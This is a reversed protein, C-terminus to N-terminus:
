NAELKLDSAIEGLRAQQSPTLPLNSLQQYIQRALPLDKLQHAAELTLTAADRTQVKNASQFTALLKLGLESKGSHIMMQAQSLRLLSSGIGHRHAQELAQVAAEPENSWWHWYSVCVQHVLQAQPSATTQPIWQSSKLGDRAVSRMYRLTTFLNANIITSPRLFDCSVAQHDLSSLSSVFELRTAHDWEMDADNVTALHEGQLTLLSEFLQLFLRTQEGAQKGDRHWAEDFMAVLAHYSVDRKQRYTEVVMKRALPADYQVMEQICRDIEELSQVRELGRHFIANGDAQRGSSSLESALMMSALLKSEVPRDLSQEVLRQFRELMKPPLPEFNLSRKVSVQFQLSRRFLLENLALQIAQSDGSDTLRQLVDEYQTALAAEDPSPSGVNASTVAVSRAHWPQLLLICDWLRNPDQSQLASQVFSLLSSTAVRQANQDVSVNSNELDDAKARANQNARGYKALTAIAHADGFTPLYITPSTGQPVAAGRQLAQQQIMVRRTTASLPGTVRILAPNINPENFLEQWADARELWALRGADVVDKLNAANPETPPRSASRSEAAPPELYQAPQEFPVQLGLISEALVLGREGANLRQNAVIGLALLEWNDPMVIQAASVVGAAVAHENRILLSRIYAILTVLQGRDRLMDSWQRKAAAEDGSRFLLEGLLLSGEPSPDRQILQRQCEAAADYKGIAQAIELSSRLLEADDNRGTLARQLASWAANLDGRQQHIKAIWLWADRSRNQQTGFQELRDVLELLREAGSYSKRLLELADRQMPEEQALKLCQWANAESAAYNKLNAQLQSLLLWARADDPKSTTLQEVAEVARLPNGAAHCLVAYYKFHQETAAPESLMQEVTLLADDVRKFQMQIEALRQLHQLRNPRNLRCLVQQAEQERVALGARRYVKAALTWTVLSDPDAQTAEAVAAAAAESNGAALQTLVILRWAHTRSQPQLSLSKLQELRGDLPALKPLVVLLENWVRDQEEATKAQLEAADLRDCAEAFRQAESLLEAARLLSELNPKLQCAREIAQLAEAQYRFQSLVESLRAYSAANEENKPIQQLVEVATERRGLRHLYEGYFERYQQANNSHQWASRFLEEAEETRTIGHLLEAVRVLMAPDHDRKDLLRKWIEAARDRASAPDETPVLLQIRGWAIRSDVDNGDIEVLRQLAQAASPFDQEAQSWEAQALWAEPRSPYQEQVRHLLQWAEPRRGDSRLLEALRLSGRLDDQRTNLRNQYYEILGATGRESEVLQEIEQLLSGYLWSEPEARRLLAEYDAIAEQRAGLRGKINALQKQLDLRENPSKALGILQEIIPKATKPDDCNLYIESLKRLVQVNAPFLSQIQDGIAAISAMVDPSRHQPRARALENLIEAAVTPNPRRSLSRQLSQVVNSFDRNFNHARALYLSTLADASALEDAKSLSQIAALIQGRQLEILGLLQWLRGNNTKAAETRLEDCYSAVSNANGLQEYFKDFATGTQPRSRLIQEYRQRLQTSKDTASKQDSLTADQALLLGDLTLAFGFLIAVLSRLIGSSTLQNEPPHHSM